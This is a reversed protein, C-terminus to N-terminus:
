WYFSNLCKIRVILFHFILSFCSLLTFYNFYHQLIVIFLNVQQGSLAGILSYSM